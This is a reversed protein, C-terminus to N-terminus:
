WVLRMETALAVTAALERGQRAWWGQTRVSAWALAAGGPGVVAVAVAVAVAM